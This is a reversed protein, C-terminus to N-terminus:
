DIDINAQNIDSRINSESYEQQPFKIKGADALQTFFKNMFYVFLDKRIFYVGDIYIGDSKKLSDIEEKSDGKIDLETLNM